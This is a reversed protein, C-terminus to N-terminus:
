QSIEETKINECDFNEIENRTIDEERKVPNFSINTAKVVNVNDMFTQFVQTLRWNQDFTRRYNQKLENNEKTLCDVKTKLIEVCNKLEDNETELCNQPELKPKKNAPLSESTTALLTQPLFDEPIYPEENTVSADSAIGSSNLIGRWKKVLNETRLILENTYLIRKFKKVRSLSESPTFSKLTINFNLIHKIMQTSALDQSTVNCNELDSIAIKIPTFSGTSLGGGLLHYNKELCQLLNACLMHFPYDTKLTQM